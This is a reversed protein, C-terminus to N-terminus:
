KRTLNASYATLSPILAAALYKPQERFVTRFHSLRQCASPGFPNFFLDRRGLFEGFLVGFSISSLTMSNLFLSLFILPFLNRISNPM